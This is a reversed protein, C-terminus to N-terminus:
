FIFGIFISFTHINRRPDIGNICDIDHIDRSYRFSTEFFQWDLSIGYNSVLGSNYLFFCGEGESWLYDLKCGNPEEPLCKKLQKYKTNEDLQIALSPGIYFRININEKIQKKIALLIPIEIFKLSIDIDYYYGRPPDDFYLGIAKNNIISRKTIYLIEGALGIHKSFSHEYGLGFIAKNKATADENFFDSKNIGVKIIKRNQASISVAFSFTLLIFLIKRM